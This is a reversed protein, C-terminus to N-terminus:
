VSKTINIVINTESTNHHDRNLRWERWSKEALIKYFYNMVVPFFDNAFPKWLVIMINLPEKIIVEVSCDIWRIIWNPSKIQQWIKQWLNDTLHFFNGEM